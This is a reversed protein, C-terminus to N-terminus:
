RLKENDGTRVKAGPRERQFRERLLASTLLYQAILYTAMVVVDHLPLHPLDALDVGILTDSLLFLLGGLAARGSFGSAALASTFLLLSYAAVPLRMDDLGPWLVAIGAVWGLGYLLPIVPRRRLGDLAGRRLFCTIYSVHAAGFLAMGPIFLGDISLLVDGGWSFLLATVLSRPGGCAAAWAALLLMLLAKTLADFPELDAAVLVLHVAACAWFGIILVRNRM